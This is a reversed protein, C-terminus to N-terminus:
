KAELIAIVEPPRIDNSEAIDRLMTGPEAKLGAAHLRSIAEDVTIGAGACYDALSKRGIGQGQGGQGQGQGQGQGKGPGQKGSHESDTASAIEFVQLPSMGHAEALDGVVVDMSELAINKAKLQEAAREPDLGATACLKAFTLLEAHAPLEVKSEEVPTDYRQKFDEQLDILSGFPPLGAGAGWGILVCVGVPLAWQWRFSFKRRARDQFYRVLPRWNLVIHVVAAALFVISFWIHLAQWQSKLLGAFTWGTWNAIRGPPVFFLVIGTAVILAFTVM